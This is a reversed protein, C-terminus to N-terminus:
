KGMLFKIKSLKARLYQIVKTHIQSVRSETLNLIEGIEKLTLGEYYYLVMVQKEQEPLSELVNTIIKKIEEKEVIFDPKLSEPSEITDLISVTDEDSGVNWADYISIMGKFSVENQMKQYEEFSIGLSKAVEDPNPMRGLKKELEVIKEDIEKAKQRISRPLWDAERLSDIIRGRIRPIAYTKFKTKYDLEYKEIADLLGILGESVLDDFEVTDPLNVAIRGAVYKVLPAYKRVFYEKINEDHTKKYIKWLEEESKKDYDNFNIM